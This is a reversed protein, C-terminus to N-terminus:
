RADRAATVLAAFEALDESDLLTEPAIEVGVERSVRLCVRIADLSTGGFDYFSESLLHPGNGTVEAVASLVIEPVDGGQGVPTTSESNAYPSAM